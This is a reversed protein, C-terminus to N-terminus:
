TDDSGTVGQDIRDAPAQGSWTEGYTWDPQKQDQREDLAAVGDHIDVIPAIREPVV